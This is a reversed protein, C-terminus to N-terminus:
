SYTIDNGDVPITERVFYGDKSRVIYLYKHYSPIAMEIDFANNVTMGSAVKKNMDDMIVLTDDDTYIIKEPSESKMSYIDYKAGNEVDSIHLNIKTTTAYDFDSPINLDEMTKEDPTPVNKNKDKCSTLGITIVSLIIVSIKVATKM